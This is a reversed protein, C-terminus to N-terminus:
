DTGSLRGLYAVLDSVTRVTKLAKGDPRNAWGGTLGIVVEVLEASDIDLDSRLQADPTIEEPEIGLEVLAGTVADTLVDPALSM